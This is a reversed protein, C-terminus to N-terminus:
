QVHAVAPSPWFFYSIIMMILGIVWFAMFDNRILKTFPSIMIRNVGTYRLVKSLAAIISIILITPLLETTAYIFSNFISIISLSISKTSVVAIIFIGLICVLSCDRKKIMTGLILLIFILYIYHIATLQIM